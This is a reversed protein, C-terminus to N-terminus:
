DGSTLADAVDEVGIDEFVLERGDTLYVAVIEKSAGAMHVPRVHTVQEPNIRSHQIKVLKM